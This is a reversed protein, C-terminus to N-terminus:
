EAPRAPARRPRPSAHGQQDQPLLTAAYRKGYATFYGRKNTNDVALEEGLHIGFMMLAMAGIVLCVALFLAWGIM